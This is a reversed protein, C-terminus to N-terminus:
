LIKEIEPRLDDLDPPTLLSYDIRKTPDGYTQPQKGNVHLPAPWHSTTRREEYYRRRKAAMQKTHKPHNRPLYCIYQVLREESGSAGYQNAHFARSDWLVLSGAPVHLVRKSSAVLELDDPPILNWNKSHNIGKEQFYEEHINHTGEYVVFTRESNTTLSVFGQICQRGKASPAQDTHTWCKDRKRSETPIYCCGDFSVILDDTDWLAKFVDQVAPRTRLYWAHRTHGAEHYKYIGHPNVNAHIKDHNPITTQWGKFLDYAYAIEEPTLVDPVVCYGKQDLETNIDMKHSTRHDDVTM